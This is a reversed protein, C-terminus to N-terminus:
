SQYVYSSVTRYNAEAKRLAKEHMRIESKIKNIQEAALEMKGYSNGDVFDKVSRWIVMKQDELKKILAKTDSIEKQFGRVKNQRELTTM